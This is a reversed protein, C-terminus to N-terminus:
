SAKISEISKAIRKKLDEIERPSDYVDSFAETEGNELHKSFQKLGTVYLESLFENDQAAQKGVYKNGGIFTEYSLAICPMPVTFSENTLVFDGHVTLVLRNNYRDNGAAICAELQKLDPVVIRDGREHFVYYHKFLSDNPGPIVIENPDVRFEKGEITISHAFEIQEASLCSDTSYDDAVAVGDYTRYTGDNRRRFSLGINELNIYIRV